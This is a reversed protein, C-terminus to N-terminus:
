LHSILAGFPSAGRPIPDPSPHEGGQLSPWMRMIKKGIKM